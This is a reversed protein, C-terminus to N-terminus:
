MPATMWLYGLIIIGLIMITTIIIFLLYKKKEKGKVYAFIDIIFLCIFILILYISFGM